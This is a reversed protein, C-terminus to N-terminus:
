PGTFTLIGIPDQGFVAAVEAKNAADAAPLLALEKTLKDSDIELNTFHETCTYLTGSRSCSANGDKSSLEFSSSAASWTGQFAVRQEAGVLLAPLKYALTAVGATECFTIDTISYSAYPALEAPVPVSYTGSPIDVHALENLVDPPCAALTPKSVPSAADDAAGDHQGSGGSGTSATSDASSSCGLGLTACVLVSVLIPNAKM